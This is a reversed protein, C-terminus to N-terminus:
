CAEEGGGHVEVDVPDVEYVRVDVWGHGVEHVDEPDSGFAALRGPGGHGTGGDSHNRGVVLAEEM